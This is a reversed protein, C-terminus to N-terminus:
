DEHKEEFFRYLNYELADQLIINMKVVNHKKDTGNMKTQELSKYDIDGEGLFYFGNGEDDDRKVFIYIPMDKEKHDVLIRNIEPSQLTRNSRTFWQLVHSDLFKDEYSVSAEIEESKHYTIFIPLTNYKQKYGYMTSTEDNEWNLVRCVDKRGYKENLTFQQSQDYIKSNLKALELVDIVQAKFYENQLAEIFYSSPSVDNEEVEILAYGYKKKNSETYFELSLMRLISRLTRDDMHYGNKRMEVHFDAKNVSGKMLRDILFVESVRKGDVIEKSLFTLIKKQVKTLPYVPEKIKGLFEVYTNYKNLIVMPNIGDQDHYLDVLSPVRGIKQKVFHYMKKLNAVSDVKAVSISKYIKEKAVKEFNITSVGSIMNRGILEKRMKDKNFSKDGTLAAPILYNNKYNGIFDIVTLFEKNEHKRLGRGLQQIFIISSETQRLMVVQNVSPIDVGENFIDVTILYELQNNELEKVARQREEQSNLGTLAKTQYGLQNLADELAMAENRNSVFMLGRVTNGAHSYYELKESIHQVREEQVLSEFPSDDSIVQGNYEYDTVGFYHFPSLIESELAKQLRIEYAINYDFLSFIDTNDTREPTATMGLLFKPKFHNIIHKYSNAGSRHAEDIVIYDFHDPHFVGLHNEKSLTQVTAFVYKAHKNKHSGSYIGFDEVSGGILTRYDQMSKSLIQERHAVFLVREPNVQKVDFASLFTKGTGTASVVLGKEAGTLRLHKLSNLAEQQMINPEIEKIMKENYRYPNRAEILQLVKDDHNLEKYIDEYHNIWEKSLDIAETWLDNFQEKFNRIVEGNDLSTLKLNYEYNKKLATDTLNSSGIFMTSYQHNDFIYGKAHFGSQETIKVEINPIKLLEKFVKPKNFNLYTSTIIRGSVGRKNLEYLSTKLSALGGETIFAVSITFSESAELADLMPSLVNNEENNIILEPPHHSTKNTYQDIFGREYANLLHERRNEM